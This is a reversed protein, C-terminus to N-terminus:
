TRTLFMYCMFNMAVSKQKPYTQVSIRCSRRVKKTKTWCLAIEATLEPESWSQSDCQRVLQGTQRDTQWWAWKNELFLSLIAQPIFQLHERGERERQGEGEREAPLLLHLCYIWFLIWSACGWKCPVDQFWVGGEEKEKNRQKMTELMWHSYYSSIFTLCLECCCCLFITTSQRSVWEASRSKTCTHVSATLLLLRLAATMLHCVTAGWSLFIWKVSFSLPTVRVRTQPGCGSEKFRGESKGLRCNHLVHNLTLYSRIEQFGKGGM